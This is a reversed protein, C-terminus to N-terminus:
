LAETATFKIGYTSVENADWDFPADLRFQSVTSNVVLPDNDGPSSRLPPWIPLSANGSGDSNVNDTVKYLRATSSSGLQIYDGAKLINTVGATWGDTLLTMGTQGAGKVLPSGTAVGQPRRGDYDGFLFTGYRGQLKAMFAIFQEAYVRRMAPMEIECKWAAGQNKYVQQQYSFPSQSVAVSTLMGFKSRAPAIVTPFTLPYSIAM